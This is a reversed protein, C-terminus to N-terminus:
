LPGKPFYTLNTGDCLRALLRKCAISRLLHLVDDLEPLINLREEVRQMPAFYDAAVTQDHARVYLMTSSLKKHDPFRQIAIKM